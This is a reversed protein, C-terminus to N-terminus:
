DIGPPGNRDRLRHSVVLLLSPAGVVVAVAAGFELVDAGVGVEVTFALFTVSLRVDVVEILKETPQDLKRIKLWGPVPLGPRHFPQYLGFAVIVLVTGLLFDDTLNSSRCRSTSPAGAGVELLTVTDWNIKGVALTGYLYLAVASLFTGLVAFAVFVRNGAIVRLVRSRGQGMGLPPFGEQGQEAM